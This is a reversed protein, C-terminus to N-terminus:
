NRHHRSPAFYVQCSGLRSCAPHANPVQHDLNCGTECRVQMLSHPGNLVGTRCCTKEGVKGAALTTSGTRTYRATNTAADSHAIPQQPYPCWVRVRVGMDSRQGGHHRDRRNRSRNPNSEDSRTLLAVRKIEGLMVDDCLGHGNARVGSAADFNVPSRTGFKHAAATRCAGTDSVRIIYKAAVLAVLHVECHRTHPQM